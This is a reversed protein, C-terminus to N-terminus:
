LNFCERWQKLQEAKKARLPFKDLYDMLTELEYRRTICWRASPQRNGGLQHSVTVHGGLEGALRDLIPKDDIRCGIAFKPYLKGVSGTHTFCGEGDIYGALWADTKFM